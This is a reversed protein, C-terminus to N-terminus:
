SSGRESMRSESYELYFDNHKQQHSNGVIMGGDTEVIKSEPTAKSERHHLLKAAVTGGALAVQYVDSTGGRAMPEGEFGGSVLEAEFCLPMGSYDRYDEMLQLFSSPVYGRRDHQDREGSLSNPSVHFTYTFMNSPTWLQNKHPGTTSEVQKRDWQQMTEDELGRFICHIM